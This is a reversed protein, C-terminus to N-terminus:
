SYKSNEMYRYYLDFILSDDQSLEVKNGYLDFVNIDVNIIDGEKSNGKIEM